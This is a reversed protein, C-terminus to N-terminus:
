IFIYMYLYEYMYVYANYRRDRKAGWKPINEYVKLVEPLQTGGYADMLCKMANKVTAGSPVIRSDVLQDLLDLCAQHQKMLRAGDM